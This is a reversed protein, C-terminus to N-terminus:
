VRHPPAPRYPSEERQRGGPANPQPSLVRRLCHTARPTPANLVGGPGKRPSHRPPVRRVRRIATDPRAADPDGRGGPCGTGGTPAGGGTERGAGARTETRDANQSPDSSLPFPRRHDKAAAHWVPTAPRWFGWRGAACVVHLPSRPADPHGGTRTPLPEDANPHDGVGGPVRGM